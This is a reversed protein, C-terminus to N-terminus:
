FSRQNDRKHYISVLEALISLAIEAAARGGLPIGAPGHLRTLNTDSMGLEKLRHLRLQHTKTSGLCGIYYADTKLCHLLAPDDIKPDHTLTLIATQADISLEPLVDQPWGQKITVNPFREETLFVARPDIIITDLEMNLALQSLVQSIHGAGIIVLQNKPRRRLTFLGKEEELNSTHVFHMSTDPLTARVTVKPIDVMIDALMFEIDLPQRTNEARVAQRLVSLPIGTDAVPLILVSIRGGCSLGVQWATEDAVGFEQLCPLGSEMAEQSLRIVEGEVCGGSVSGELHLDDRVLMLSGPQRPASGWTSVVIVLCASHANDVWNELQNLFSNQKM